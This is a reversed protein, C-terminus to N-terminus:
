ALLEEARKLEIILAHLNARAQVLEGFALRRETADLHDAARLFIRHAQEVNETYWPHSARFVAAGTDSKEERSIM